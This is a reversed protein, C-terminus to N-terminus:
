KISNAIDYYKGAKEPDEEAWTDGLSRLASVYYPDIELCERLLRRASRVDSGAVLGALNVYADLYKRNAEIVKSYWDMAEDKRGEAAAINGLYMLILEARPNLELGHKLLSDAEEKRGTRYLAGAFNYFIMEDTDYVAAAKGFHAIAEELRGEQLARYGSLDDKTKRELVACIPANDAYIVHIADKPPFFGQKLRSPPIYRNVVIAYDWDHMSREEYRMWSTSINKENRFDWDVRYTARVVLSDSINKEKLHEILWASAERQSAYYYDLEYNGFAGNVGGALENYYIYEYPHNKIMFKVPHLLLLLLALSLVLSWRGWRRVEGGRHGEGASSPSPPSAAINELIRYISNIGSSSLLVIGPYVFLFQRWSSYLNSKELIVFVMPFLVTFAIFLWASSNKNAAKRFFVFFLVLGATVAVPITILMSKFLYYWPMYDSWEVRGEFVQRFTAPYHAMIRYSEFINRLPDQLAYPWMLLASLLYAAVSLITILIGKVVFEKVRIKGEEVYLVFYKVLFWLFLYCVLILGGARIGISFSFCLVLLIATGPRFKGSFLKITLFIGAIYSFAFPVDKLNNFSHGVFAPTAAFLLLVLLGSRYGSLHVAFLATVLITLWGMIASMMNRFTYVDEIGLWKTFVTVINDYFQGYYKLNTVPTHLATTDTGGSAFYNYVDVSHNYHIIEDCSIGASRSFTVLAILLVSAAIWFIYKERVVTM